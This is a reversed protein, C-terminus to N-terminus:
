KKGLAEHAIELARDFAHSKEDPYLNYLGDIRELAKGYQECRKLLFVAEEYLAPYGMVKGITGFKHLQKIIDEYIM